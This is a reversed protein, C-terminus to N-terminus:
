AYFLILFSQLTINQALFHYSILVSAPTVQSSIHAAAPADKMHYFRPIGKIKQSFFIMHGHHRDHVCVWIYVNVIKLDSIFQTYWSAYILHPLHVRFFTHVIGSFM